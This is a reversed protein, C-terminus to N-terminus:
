KGGYAKSLFSDNIKRLTKLESNNIEAFNRKNIIDNKYKDPQNVAYYNSLFNQDMLSENKIEQLKNVSEILSEVEEVYLNLTEDKNWGCYIGFFAIIEAIWDRELDAKKDKEEQTKKSELKDKIKLVIEPYDNEDIDKFDFLNETIIEKLATLDSMLIYARYNVLFNLQMRLTMKKLKIFKKDVLIERYNDLHDYISM